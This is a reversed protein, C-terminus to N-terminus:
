CATPDFREKDPEPEGTRRSVYAVAASDATVFRDFTGLEEIRDDSAHDAADHIVIAVYVKRDDRVVEEIAVGFGRCGTYGLTAETNGWRWGKPPRPKKAM